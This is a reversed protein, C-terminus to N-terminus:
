SKEIHLPGTRGIQNNMQPLSDSATYEPEFNSTRTVPNVYYGFDCIYMAAVDALGKLNSEPSEMPPKHKEEM